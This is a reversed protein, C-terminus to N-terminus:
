TTQECCFIRSQYKKGATEASTFKSPKIALCLVMCSLTQMQRYKISLDQLQHFGSPMSTALVSITGYNLNSTHLYSCSSASPLTLSTSSLSLLHHSQFPPSSSLNSEGRDHQEWASATATLWLELVTKCLIVLTLECHLVYSGFMYCEECRQQATHCKNVPHWSVCLCLFSVTFLQFCMFILQLTIHLFPFFLGSLLEGLFTLLITWGHIYLDGVIGFTAEQAM